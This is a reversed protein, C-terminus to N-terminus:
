DEDEKFGDIGTILSNVTALENALADHKGNIYALERILDSRIAQLKTSIQEENM